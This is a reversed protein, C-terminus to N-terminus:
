NMLWTIDKKLNIRWCYYFCDFNCQNGTEVKVDDVYKIFQIRKRPIIIQIGQIDKFINRIYQTIIMSSPSIIIFPKDLSVLRQLIEKKLTYPPNSVVIDGLDNDFFDVDKSIIDFGLDRLYDPSKSNENYFPEWIVKGKPIYDKINDWAYRPTMYDDHKSFNKTHFGAM